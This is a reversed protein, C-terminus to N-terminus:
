SISQDCQIGSHFDHEQQIDSAYLQVLNYLLPRHLSYQKAAAMLNQEIGAALGRLARDFHRRDTDKNSLFFVADGGSSGLDRVMSRSAHYILQFRLGTKLLNLSNNVPLQPWVQLYKSLM